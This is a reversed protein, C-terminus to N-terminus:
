NKGREREKKRLEWPPEPDKDAWLGRKEKRVKEEAEALKKDKSYSKYHWAIGAEIM